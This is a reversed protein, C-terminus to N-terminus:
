SRDFQVRTLVLPSIERGMFQSYQYRLQRNLMDYGNIIRCGADAARTLLPSREPTYVLDVVAERGCFSYMELLDSSGDTGVPTAQIIIDRFKKIMDIGRSDPVGWAFNYRVALERAKLFNRNLILVSAGLRFLEGAIVKAMNGAGILTIKQRKLNKRGIFDLLFDLFGPGDTNTGIWGTNKKCMTNCMGTTEVQSSQDYLFPIVDKKYPGTISLGSIDLENALKLFDDVGDVPFPAYVADIEELKFVTNYFRFYEPVLPPNGVMGYIKTTKNISRFHYVDTLDQVDIQGGAAIPIDNEGLASSYSLYSGFQEALIRSYVGYRGMSIFIKEQKPYLRSARYMSLVDSASNAMVSIKVIDDGICKMGRIKAPIDDTNGDLNHWSRIIRTGFTRAAEELSPVNLDEEIDVYAFNLRRNANAYALGRALLSMRAGEGSSFYGGDITRRITLIVPLGAQEPFRRILFREDPDLCDVRLEAIDAYKQYKNLIELNRELTRATLCLCIKAVAAGTEYCRTFIRELKGATVSDSYRILADKVIYPIL